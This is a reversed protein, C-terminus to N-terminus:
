LSNMPCVASNKVCVGKFAEGGGVREGGGGGGGGENNSSISLVTIMRLVINESTLFQLHDSRSSINLVPFICVVGASFKFGSLSIKNKRPRGM